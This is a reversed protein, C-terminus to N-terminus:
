VAVVDLIDIIERGQVDHRDYTLEAKELPTHGANDIIDTRAGLALLRKVETVDKESVAFHLRTYGWKGRKNIDDSFATIAKPEQQSTHVEVPFFQKSCLKELKQKQIMEMDSALMCAVGDGEEKQYPIDDDNSLTDVTNLFALFNTRAKESMRNAIPQYHERMGNGKQLCVMTEM